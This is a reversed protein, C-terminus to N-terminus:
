KGKGGTALNLINEAQNKLSAAEDDSLSETKSGSVAQKLVLNGDKDWGARETSSPKADQSAKKQQVVVWPKGDKYAYDTSTFGKDGYDARARIFQVQGNQRFVQWARSVDKELKTGNSIKMGGIQKQVAQFDALEKEGPTQEPVLEISVQSPAGKTLVPAQLAMKYHREGDTLDAKVVYLDAPNVDAPNFTLEFSQPFQVPAITKSALPAAGAQDTSSVDVLNVVLKADPSVASEGRVTITGSVSNAKAATAATDGNGQEPANSGNCGALALAAVSMLSWVMRRM